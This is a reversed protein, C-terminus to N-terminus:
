EQLSYLHKYSEFSVSSDWQQSVVWHALSTVLSTWVPRTVLALTLYLLAALSLLSSVLSTVLVARGLPLVGLWRGCRSSM